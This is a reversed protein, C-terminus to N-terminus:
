PEFTVPNCIATNTGDTCFVGDIAAGTTFTLARSDPTACSSQTGCLLGTSRSKFALAGGVVAVVTLSLLMIRVKKM